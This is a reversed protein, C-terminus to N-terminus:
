YQANLANRDHADWFQSVPPSAGQTMVSNNTTRHGLGGVHGLEHTATKRRQQGTHATRLNLYVTKFSCATGSLSGSCITRGFWQSPYAQANFAVRADSCTRTAHVDTTNVRRIAENIAGNGGDAYM